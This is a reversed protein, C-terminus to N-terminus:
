GTCAVLFARLSDSLLYRASIQPNYISEIKLTDMEFFNSFFSQLDNPTKSHNIQVKVHPFYKLM